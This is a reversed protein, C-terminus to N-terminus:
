LRKERLQLFPFMPKCSSYVLLTYSDTVCDTFTKKLSVVCFTVFDFPTGYSVAVDLVSHTIMSVCETFTQHLYINGFVFVIWKQSHRICKRGLVKPRKVNPM